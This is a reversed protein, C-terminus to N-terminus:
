LLNTYMHTHIFGQRKFYHFYVSKSCRHNTITKKFNIKLIFLIVIYYTTCYLVFYAIYVFKICIQAFYKSSHMERKNRHKKLYGSFYVIEAFILRISNFRISNIENISMFFFYEQYVFSMLKNFSEDCLGLLHIIGPVDSITVLLMTVYNITTSCIVYLRSTLDRAFKFPFKVCSSCKRLNRPDRQRYVFAECRIYVAHTALLRARM